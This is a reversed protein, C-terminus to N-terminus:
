DNDSDPESPAAPVREDCGIDPRAGHPIADGEVDFPVAHELAGADVLPHEEGDLLRGREDIEPDSLTFCSSCGASALEADTEFVTGLDDVWPRAAAIAVHSALAPQPAGQSREFGTTGVLLTNAVNVIAASASAVLAARDGVLTAHRLVVLTRADLAAANTASAARLFSATVNTSGGALLGIASGLAGEANSVVIESRDVVAGDGGTAIVVGLAENGGAVLFASESVHGDMFSLGRASTGAEGVSADVNVRSASVAKSVGLGLGAAHEDGRVHVHVNEFRPGQVAVLGARAGIARLGSAGLRTNEVVVEDGLLDLAIADGLPAEADLQTGIVQVDSARALVGTATETARTEVIADIVAIRSAGADVGVAVAASAGDQVAAIHGALVVPADGGQILVGFAEAASGRDAGGVVSEPALYLLTDNASIGIARQAATGGTVRSELLQIDCGAALIGTSEAAGVSAILESHIVDITADECRLGVRKGGSGGTLVSDSLRLASRAQAHVLSAVGSAPTSATITVDSLAATANATVEVLTGEHLPGEDIVVSDLASTGELTVAGDAAGLHLSLRSLAANKLVLGGADLPIRSPEGGPTWTDGERVYGGVVELNRITGAFPAQPGSAIRLETLQHRAAVELATALTRFPASATGDGEEDDGTAADVYPGAREVIVELDASAGQGQADFASLRFHYVEGDAGATLDVWPEEVPEPLLLVPDSPDQAISWREIFGSDPDYAGSADVRFVTGPAVWRQPEVVLVPAENAASADVTVRVADPASYVTGDFATVHFLLVDPANPAHFLGPVLADSEAAPGIVQTVEIALPDRDLDSASTSLTFAAGPPVARDSGGSVTPARNGAGATVDVFAYRIGGSVPGLRREGGVVLRTRRLPATLPVDTAFVAAGLGDATGGAPWALTNSGDTQGEFSLSVEEGPEVVVPATMRTAPPLMTGGPWLARAAPAARRGNADVADVVVVCPLERVGRVIISRGDVETHVDGECFARAELTADNRGVITAGFTVTEGSMVAADRPLEVFFPSAGEDERVVVSVEDLSVRGGSEARLRFVLTAPALPAVFAPSPSSPNTLVVPPGAVQSWTLSLEGAYLLSRSAHGDLQVRSGELVELDAGALAVVTPLGGHDDDPAYPTNEPAPVCGVAVTLCALTLALSAASRCM